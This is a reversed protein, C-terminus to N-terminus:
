SWNGCLFIKLYCVEGVGGIVGGLNKGSVRNKSVSQMEVRVAEGWSM